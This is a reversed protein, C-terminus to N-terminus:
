LTVANRQPFAWKSMSKISWVVLVSVEELVPLLMALLTTQLFFSLHEHGLLYSVRDRKQHSVSVKFRGSMLPESSCTMLRFVLLLTSIVSVRHPDTVTERRVEKELGTLINADKSSTV